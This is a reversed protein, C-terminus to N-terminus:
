TYSLSFRKSSYRHKPSGAPPPSEIPKPSSARHPARLYIAIPLSAAALLPPSIGHDFWLFTTEVPWGYLYTGYSIDWNNNIKRLPGINTKTALWFLTLGGVTSLGLEATHRNLLLIACLLACGVAKRPGLWITIEKKYLFAVSGFMFISTLRLAATPEGITLLLVTQHNYWLSQLASKANDFTAAFAATALVAVVTTMLRRHRFFGHASLIALFLYCHFEYSITWMAGDLNQYHLPALQPSNAPPLLLLIRLIIELTPEPNVGISPGLVFMITTFSVFYAPYIRLVRRRFYASISDSHIISATILYGSLLFFVDVSFEGLSITHFICTLPERSRNGDVLEPAHGIIVLSAFLLRLFGINNNKGM